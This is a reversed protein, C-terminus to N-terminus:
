RWLPAFSAFVGQLKSLVRIGPGAGSGTGSALRELVVEVPCALGTEPDFYRPYDILVAHVLQDLSLHARRRPTKPGLDRTLGWGAYFPAGLCVVPKGRLLAEFGLLSTMTWITDVAGIASIADTEDLDLDAWQRLEDPPVHGPRLGAVVDPHPKYLILADPAEARARALLARNSAIQGCGLRISADDEVQGVVLLRSQGKAPPPIEPARSKLNYKTVGTECLRQRLAHARQLAHPPLDTAANLIRELRSERRQDYYIGLDDVVLSLPPVLQAGLGRSRLFGDELRLLPRKQSAFIQTASDTEDPRGVGADTDAAEASAWILGRRPQAAAKRIDNSYVLARGASHFFRRLHARKWLRMGLATYGARDERYARAQAGLNDILISFDCLRDRYVDYWVPYLLMTGAFLQLPTLQRRRRAFRQADISLGWGGYFPRGFVHPKHGAMIAEFGMFSTVCYVSAAGKLLQAPAIPQDIIRTKADCDRASFYGRRHGASVEPHTKILIQKGPNERRATALMRAFSDGDAAGLRVSADDRTQDVVLVYDRANRPPAQDFANYKSLGSALYRAKADRARALLRSDTFDTDNLITELDSPATSDFYIGTRDLILGQPPEGDRGTRISRLFGDEVTLVASQHARALRLGRNAHRTRGWVAVVGSGPPPRGFRLDVGALSLIRRIRKNTFFGATVAHATIRDRDGRRDTGAV